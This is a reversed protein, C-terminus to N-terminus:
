QAYQEDSGGCIFKWWPTSKGLTSNLPWPLRLSHSSASKTSASSVSLTRSCGREGQERPASAGEGNIEKEWIELVKAVTPRDSARTKWCMEVTEWIPSTLGLQVAGEPKKPRKQQALKLIVGADPTDSFPPSGTFIQLIYPDALRSLVLRLSRNHCHPVSRSLWWPLSIPLACTQVGTM